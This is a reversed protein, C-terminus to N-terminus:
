DYGAYTANPKADAGCPGLVLNWHGLFNWTGRGLSTTVPYVIPDPKTCLQRQHSHFEFDTQNQKTGKSHNRKDNGKSSNSRWENERCCPIRRCIRLLSKLADFNSIGSLLNQLNKSLWKPVLLILGACGDQVVRLLTPREPEIASHDSQRVIHDRLLDTKRIIILCPEAGISRSESAPVCRRLQKCVAWRDTGVLLLPCIEQPHIPSM